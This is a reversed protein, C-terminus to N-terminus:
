DVLKRREIEEDLRVEDWGVPDQHIIIDAGIFERRIEDTLTDVIKQSERVPMEGDLEIHFAIFIRDSDSRTRLDHMGRVDQHNEVITKIRLRHTDSLERDMLVHMAERAIRWASGALGAAVLLAFVPDLWTIGTMQFLALSAIVAINLFLDGTYHMRDARIAMSGTRRIVSRQYRLLAITLALSLAMVAYGFNEHSITHPRYLRDISEYSLVAASGIIFAAQALAALPEAKAHGFRHDDDPPQMATAVGFVTVLSAILDITSDLLSSLMTVSDTLLYAGLKAIILIIAVSVSAYTALRRERNAAEPLIHTPV